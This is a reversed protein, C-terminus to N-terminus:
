VYAMQQVELRRGNARKRDLFAKVGTGVADVLDDHPARPFGVMEAELDMLGPAHLVHGQQYFHLVEAARVEKKVSQHIVRTKVPMDHLIAPWLEGGQNTEVLLLGIDEDETLLDLVRRRLDEGVLRVRLARKVRCRGRGKFGPEWEIVALGTFDSTSKTTVAPDISLLTRTRAELDGYRFDELRWYGGTAGLPSSAYNKAYDRTHEISELFELPWKEPWVSARDGNDLTIIAPYHHVTFGSDEIWSM